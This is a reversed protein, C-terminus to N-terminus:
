KFLMPAFESLYIRWNKWIHGEGTEYYQYKYGKEDLKKRFDTNAKFLFDTNGIAIWYLKPKKDFQIKLKEDLNDYIKSQVGERPMIAASYLGVYDFMDPYEKSIHLSHFGGMSLGAIARHSKDAKVRYNSEIFKVVEPFHEEFAGDMRTDGMFSPKYMGRPSEGPAAQQGANGNTMVVLMPKAKGQAILNDLIQTARGLESWANEDGGAGHLLYFVPYSENGAEYGAPTYITIRRDKQLLDSQYWRRAVTGHPVDNVKYLDARGGGIIFINTVSAVDRIMYPNNPDCVKVGDIVFTYSYLEPALSETTYTWVGKDDKVLAASGPVDMEGMPTQMKQPPLFDGTVEIKQAEPAFISFAASNDTGIVPSTIDGGGWLAQQACSIAGALMAISVFVIFKKM